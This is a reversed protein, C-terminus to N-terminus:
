HLGTPFAFRCPPLSMVAKFHYSALHEDKCFRGRLSLLFAVGGGSANATVVNERALSVASFKWEAPM